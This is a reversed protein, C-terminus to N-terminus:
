ELEAVIRLRQDLGFGIAASGLRGGLGVLIAAFPLAEQRVGVDLDAVRQQAQLAGILRQLFVRSRQLDVLLQDLPVLRPRAPLAAERDGLMPNADGVDKVVLVQYPSDKAVRPFVAPLGLAEGGAGMSRSPIEASAKQTGTNLDSLRSHTSVYGAGYMLLAVIHDSRWNLQGSGAMTPVQAYKQNM